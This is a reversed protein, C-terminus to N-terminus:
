NDDTGGKITLAGLVARVVEIQERNLSYFINRGVNRGVIIKNEALVRLHHSALSQSLGLPEHFKCACLEGATLMGVIRFRVPDGLVKLLAAAHNLLDETENPSPLTVM